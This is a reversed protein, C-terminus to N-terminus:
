VYRKNWKNWGKRLTERWEKDYKEDKKLLGLCEKLGKGTKKGKKELSDLIVESYSKNEREKIKKLDDYVRNSVMITKAMTNM